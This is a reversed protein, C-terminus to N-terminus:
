RAGKEVLYKVVELDKHYAAWHLPTMKESKSIFNVDSGQDVLIKVCELRAVNADEDM